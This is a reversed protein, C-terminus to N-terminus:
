PDKKSKNSNGQEHMDKFWRKFLDKISEFFHHHLETLTWNKDVWMFRPLNLLGHAEKQIHICVKTWKQDIGYNNDDKKM